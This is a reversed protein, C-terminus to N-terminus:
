EIKKAFEAAWEEIGHRNAVHLKKLLNRIHIKVTEESRVLEAAIEANTMNRRLCRLMDTERRTLKYEVVAAAIIPDPDGNRIIKDRIGNVQQNIEDVNRHLKRSIDRQTEGEILLLAVDMEEPSLLEQMTNSQEMNVLEAKSRIGFKECIHKTHARVINISLGLMYAIVDVDQRELLLKLVDIERSTLQGAPSLAALLEALADNLKPPPETNPLPVCDADPENEPKSQYVMSITRSIQPILLVLGFVVIYILAFRQLGGSLFGKFFWRAATEPIVISMLFIVIVFRLRLHNKGYQHFLSRLYSLLLVNWCIYAPQMFTEVIKHGGVGLLQFSIFAATILALLIILYASQGLRNGLLFFVVFAVACVIFQHMGIGPNEPMVTLVVSQYASFCVAIGALLILVPLLSKLTLKNEPLSKRIELTNGRYALSMILSVCLIIVSVAYMLGPDLRDNATGFLFQIGDFFFLAIILMRSWSIKPAYFLASYLIRFFIVGSLGGCLSAFLYLLPLNTIFPFIVACIFMAIHLLVWFPRNTHMDKDKLILFSILLAVGDSILYLTLLTQPNVATARAALIRLPSNTFNYFIVHYWAFYCIFSGWAMISDKKM